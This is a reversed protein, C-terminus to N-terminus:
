CFDETVYVGGADSIFVGVGESVYESNIINVRHKASSMLDDVVVRAIDEASGGQGSSDVDGLYINEGIDEISFGDGYERSCVYGASNARDTPMEGDLNVHGFYGDSAMSASHLRAMTSLTHDYYLSRVGHQIRMENIFEHINVEVDSASPYSPPVRGGLFDLVSSIFGGGSPQASVFVLPTALLCALLVIYFSNRGMSSLFASVAAMVEDGM